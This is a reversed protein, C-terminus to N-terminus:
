LYFSIPKRQSVLRLSLRNLLENIFVYISILPLYWDQRGDCGAPIWTARTAVVTPSAPCHNECNPNAVYVYVSSGGACGPQEATGGDWPGCPPNNSIIRAAFIKGGPQFNGGLTTSTHTMSSHPLIM